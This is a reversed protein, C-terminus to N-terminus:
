LGLDRIVPQAMARGFRYAGSSWVPCGHTVGKVAPGDPQPCFHGGDPARVINRTPDGTLPDGRCPETPLCPLSETYQGHLLVSRNAWVFHAGEWRAVAQYIANLAGANPDHSEALSQSIPTAVFYVRTSPFISLVAAADTYYRQLWATGSTRGNAMCATLANGSFEVVVADPQWAADQRMQDFWDCIATGGFVGTRVEARGNVTVADIFPKVAESALSDGYLAVRAPRGVVQLGAPDPVAVAAHRLQQRPRAASAEHGPLLVVGASILGAVTLLALYGIARKM